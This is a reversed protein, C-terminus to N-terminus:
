QPNKKNFKKYDKKLIKNAIDILLNRNIIISYMIAFILSVINLYRNNIYYFIYVIAFASITLILTLPNYKLSVYKKLDFHRYIAMSLYAIVTSICAAYVGIVKIFLLNFVINIFAALISTTAVKKTLKKAIYISSYIGVICNFFSALLNIPIYSYAENFSEKIFIHFVFPMFAVIGICLCSFIRIVNDAIDSFFEDRDNDNIHISASETWSMSFIGFLSSLVSSFKTSVAYIGNAAVNLMTSIITRDSVNVIWWSIGNPVLPLSYKIMETTIEKSEFKININQYIKLSFFIVLICIMNALITSILIGKAGIGLIVIFVINFILTSVGTLFSAFSYVINRGLGRAIQLLLGSFMTVIINALIYIKFPIDIFACIIGYFLIFSLASICIVKLSNYIVKQKNEINNRSDILFRFTAMEEQLTVVPVLLSIYTIILDVIGYESTSLYSTYLPLLFFSIFQTAVKGVLIIITNKILEGKKNM